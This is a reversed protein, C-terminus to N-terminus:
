LNAEAFETFAQPRGWLFRTTHSDARQKGTRGFYNGREAEAILQDSDTV